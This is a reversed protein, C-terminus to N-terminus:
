LPGRDLHRGVSIPGPRHGRVIDGPELSLNHPAPGSQDENQQDKQYNDDDKERPDTRINAIIKLVVALKNVWRIDRGGLSMPIFYNYLFVVERAHYRAM